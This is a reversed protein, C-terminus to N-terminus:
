KTLKVDGSKVGQMIVSNVVGSGMSMGFFLSLGGFFLMIVLQYVWPIVAGFFPLVLFILCAVVAEVLLIWFAISGFYIWAFMGRNIGEPYVYHFRKVSKPKMKPPDFLAM